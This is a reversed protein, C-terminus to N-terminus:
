TGVGKFDPLSWSKSVEPGTWAQMPIVKVKQTDIPKMVNVLVRGNNEELQM